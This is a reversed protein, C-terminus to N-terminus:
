RVNLSSLHQVAPDELADVFDKSEQIIVDLVKVTYHLQSNVRAAESRSKRAGAKNYFQNNM